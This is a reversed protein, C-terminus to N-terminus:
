GWVAARVMRACIRGVRGYHVSYAGLLSRKSYRSRVWGAAPLVGRALARVVDSGRDMLLLPVLYDLRGQREDRSARIGELVSRRLGHPRLRALLSLPAEVGFREQVAALAVYLAGQVRWRRAREAVAAWDLTAGYRRLLLALDLQWILGSLAHHVAWHLALYILLDEPCFGLVPRSWGGVKVARDWVERVDMVSASATGPYNLLEWHLDLPFDGPERRRRVFCAAGAYALEFELPRGGDLHHYGLIPMLRLARPLDAKPILLDLDTFPRLGPDRYLAEALAPGKLAIVSVGESEFAALIQSLQEVGLLHQRKAAVWTARLRDQIPVPSPLSRLVAYLLPALREDEARGLVRAWDLPQADLASLERQPEESLFARLAAVLFALEASHDARSTSAM